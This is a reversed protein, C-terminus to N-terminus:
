KKQNDGFTFNINKPKSSRYNTQLRSGISPTKPTKVAKQPKDQKPLTTKSKSKPDKKLTINKFDIESKLNM